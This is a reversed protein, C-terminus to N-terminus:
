YKGKRLKSYGKRTDVLGQIHNCSPGDQRRIQGLTQDCYNVETWNGGPTASQSTQISQKRETVKKWEQKKNGFNQVVYTGPAPGLQFATKDRFGKWKKSM